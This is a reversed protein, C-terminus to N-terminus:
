SELINPFYNDFILFMLNENFTDEFSFLHRMNEDIIMRKGDRLVRSALTFRYFFVDERAIVSDPFYICVVKTKKKLIGGAFSFSGILHLDLRISSM